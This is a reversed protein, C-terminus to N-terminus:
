APMMLAVCVMAMSNPGNPMVTFAMAGPGVCTLRRDWPGLCRSAKRDRMASFFYAKGASIAAAGAKRADSTMRRILARVESAVVPRGPGNM